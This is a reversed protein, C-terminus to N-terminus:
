RGNAFRLTRFYGKAYPAATAVSKASWVTANLDSFLFVEQRSDERDAVLEIASREAGRRTHGRRGPTVVVVYVRQNDLLTEGLAAEFGQRMTPLMDKVNHILSEM